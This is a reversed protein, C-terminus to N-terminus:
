WWKGENYGFDEGIDNGGSEALIDRSATFTCSIKPEAYPLKKKNEEM